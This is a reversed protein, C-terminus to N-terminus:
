RGLAMRMGGITTGTQGVIHIGEGSVVAHHFRESEAACQPLSRLWLVRLVGPFLVTILM